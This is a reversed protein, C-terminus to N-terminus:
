LVDKLFPLLTEIIPQARQQHLEHGLLPFRAVRAQPVHQVITAIVEDPMLGGLEPNAQLILTPCQIACLVSTSDFDQFTSGEVTAQMAEPDLQQLSAAWELLRSKNNTRLDGIPVPGIMGPVTIELKALQEAMQQVSGGQLVIQHLGIFLAQYISQALTNRSLATDGVIIARTLEPHTAAVRM